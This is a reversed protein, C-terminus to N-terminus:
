RPRLREAVSRYWSGSFSRLILGEEGEARLQCTARSSATM